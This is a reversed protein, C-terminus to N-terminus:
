PLLLCLSVQVRPAALGGLHSRQLFPPEVGRRQGGDRELSTITLSLSYVLAESPFDESEEAAIIIHNGSLYSTEFFFSFLLFAAPALLSILASGDARITELADSLLKLLVFCTITLLYVFKSSDNRMKRM